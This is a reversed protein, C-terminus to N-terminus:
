PRLIHSYNQFYTEGAPVLRHVTMSFDVLTLRLKKTRTPSSAKSRQRLRRICRSSHTVANSATQFVCSAWALSPIPPASASASLASASCAQSAVTIASLLKSTKARRSRKRTRAVSLKRSSASMPSSSAAKGGVTKLELHARAAPEPAPAWFALSRRGLLVIKTASHHSALSDQSANKTASSAKARISSAQQANTQNRLNVAGTHVSGAARCPQKLSKATPPPRAPVPRIRSHIQSIKCKLARSCRLRAWRCRPHDLHTAKSPAQSRM